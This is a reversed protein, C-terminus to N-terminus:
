EGRRESSCPARWPRSYGWLTFQCLIGDIGDGSESRQAGDRNVVIFHGQDKGKKKM